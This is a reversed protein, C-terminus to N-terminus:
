RVWAHWHPRHETGDRLPPRHCRPHPGHWHGRRHLAGRSTLHTYSVARMGLKRLPAITRKAHAPIDCDIRERIIAQLNKMHEVLRLVQRKYVDLHTYSAASVRSASEDPSTGVAVKILVAAYIYVHLLEGRVRPYTRDM